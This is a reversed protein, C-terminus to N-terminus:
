LVFANLWKSAGSLPGCAFDFRRGYRFKHPWRIEPWTDDDEKGPNARLSRRLNTQTRGYEISRPARNGGTANAFRAMDLARISPASHGHGRRKHLMRM